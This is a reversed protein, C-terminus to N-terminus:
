RCVFVGWWWVMCGAGAFCGSGQDIVQPAMLADYTAWAQRQYGSGDCSYPYLQRM